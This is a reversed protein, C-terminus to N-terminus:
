AEEISRISPIIDDGVAIGLNRLQDALDRNEDVPKGYDDAVEIYELSNDVPDAEGNFLKAIAHAEDEAEVRYKTTHLEHQEIEYTPV